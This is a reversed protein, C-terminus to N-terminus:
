QVQSCWSKGSGEGSGEGSGRQVQGLEGGFGEPVKESVEDQGPEAGFRWFRRQFGTLNSTARCWLRGSDGM